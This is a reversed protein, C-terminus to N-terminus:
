LQRDVAVHDFYATRSSVEYRTAFGAYGAGLPVSGTNVGLVDDIFGAFAEFPGEMGPVAVWLPNTVARTVLDSRFVQLVVDGTGQLIVDLRLHQWVGAEFTDASRLLINPTVDPTVLAPASLGLSLPGKRLQIHSNLEDSLGLIYADADITTGSACLFFFPAFGIGNASASRKIAGSIRGGKGDPFPSFNLQDLYLGSVGPTDQILRSGYVHTGGGNPAETGATPGKLVDADAIGGTLSQWDTKAM